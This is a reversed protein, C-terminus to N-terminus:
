ARYARDTTYLDSSPLGVVLPPALTEVWPPMFIKKPRWLPTNLPPRCFVDVDIKSSRKKSRGGIKCCCCWGGADGVRVLPATRPTSPAGNRKAHAGPPARRGRGWGQSRWQRCRQIWTQKACSYSKASYIYASEASGFGQHERQIRPALFQNV